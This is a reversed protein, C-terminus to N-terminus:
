YGFLHKFEYLGLLPKFFLRVGLREFCKMIPTASIKIYSINKPFEFM